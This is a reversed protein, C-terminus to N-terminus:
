KRIGERVRVELGESRAAAALQALAEDSTAPMQRWGPDLTEHPSFRQLVYRDCGRILRAIAAVDAATVLGPAATTRFEHAIGSALVDRISSQVARATEAALEPRDLVLDYRGPATKIDMAIYDVPLGDLADPFCGNTDIKVKLGLSHIQDVLGAIEPHLLPEGGTIVAAGLVRRRKRLHALVEDRDLFERPVPGSVLGPNHCFPCRLNCGHTFIVAAVEGPYDILSTRVLGFRIL